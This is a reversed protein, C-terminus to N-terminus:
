ESFECNWGEIQRPESGTEIRTMVDDPHFDGYEREAACINLCRLREALLIDAVSDRLRDQDSPFFPLSGKIADYAMKMIDEPIGNM